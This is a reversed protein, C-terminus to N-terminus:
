KAILVPLSSNKVLNYSVSGLITRMIKGRKHSGMVIFDCANDAAFQILTDSIRGERDLAIEFTVADDLKRAKIFDYFKQTMEAKSEEIMETMAENLGNKIVYSAYFGDYHCELVNVLVVKAENIKAIELAKELAHECKDSFDFPVMIKKIKTFKSGKVLLVSKEVKNIVKDSVSGMFVKDVITQNDNGLIILDIDPNKSYEVIEDAPDGALTEFNLEDFDADLSQIQKALRGNNADLIKQFYDKQVEINLGAFIHNYANLDAFQDVHIVTPFLGLNKAIGLGYELPIKSDKDLKDTILAKKM